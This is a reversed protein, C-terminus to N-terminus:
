TAQESEGHISEKNAFLDIGTRVKSTLQHNHKSSSSRNCDNVNTYPPTVRQISRPSPMRRGVRKQVMVHANNPKANLVNNHVEELRNRRTEIIQCSVALDAIPVLHLHSM